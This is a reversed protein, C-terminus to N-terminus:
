DKLLSLLAATERAGMPGFQIGMGNGQGWRVTGEVSSEENLGPLRLLVTLKSGYALTREAEVFVGGLSLDRCTVELREPLLLAVPITVSKRVHKRREQM